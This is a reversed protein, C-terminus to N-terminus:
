PATDAVQIQLQNGLERFAIVGPADYRPVLAIATCDSIGWAPHTDELGRVRKGTALDYVFYQCREPRMSMDTDKAPVHEFLWVLGDTVGLWSFEPSVLSPIPVVRLPKGARSEYVSIKSCTECRDPDQLLLAFREGDVSYVIRGHGGSAGDLGPDLDHQWIVSGDDTNRAQVTEKRSTDRLLVLFQKANPAVVAAAVGTGKGLSVVWVPDRQEPKYWHLAGWTRAPGSVTRLLGAELKGPAVRWLTNESWSYDGRDTSEKADSGILEPALYYLSGDLSDARVTNAEVTHFRLLADAVLYGEAVEPVGMKDIHFIHGPVGGGPLQVAVAGKPGTAVM